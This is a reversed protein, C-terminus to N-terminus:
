SFVDELLLKNRVAMLIHGLQNKGEGDCVGWFRDKWNNTEELYYGDLAKLKEAIDPNHRFKADVVQAMVMVKISEWDSRLDLSRGWKKVQKPTLKLIAEYESKDEDVGDKLKAYMYAHESSPFTLGRYPVICKYFNSLFFYDGFFGLIEKKM